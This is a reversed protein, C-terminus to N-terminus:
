SAETQIIGYKRVIEKLCINFIIRLKILSCNLAGFCDVNLTSSFLSTNQKQVKDDEIEFSYRSSM